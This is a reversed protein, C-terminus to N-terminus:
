LRRTDTTQSMGQMTTVVIFPEETMLQKLTYLRENKFEPSGLAMM